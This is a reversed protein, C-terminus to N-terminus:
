DGKGVSGDDCLKALVKVAVIDLNISLQIFHSIVNAQAQDLVEEGLGIGGRAGAEAFNSFHDGLYPFLLEGTRIEHNASLSHHSSTELLAIPKFYLTISICLKPCTPNLIKRLMVGVIVFQVLSLLCNERINSSFGSASKTSNGSSPRACSSSQYELM